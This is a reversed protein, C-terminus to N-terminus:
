ILFTPWCHEIPVVLFVITSYFPFSGSLVLGESIKFGVMCCLLICCICSTFMLISLLDTWLDLINCYIGMLLLYNGVPSVIPSYSFFWPSIPPWGLILSWWFGSKKYTFHFKIVETGLFHRLFNSCALWISFISRHM